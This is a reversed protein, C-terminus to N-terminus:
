RELLMILYTVELRNFNIISGILIAVFLLSTNISWPGISNLGRLEVLLSVLSSM